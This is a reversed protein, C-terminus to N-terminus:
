RNTADSSWDLNSEPSRRAFQGLAAVEPGSRANFWGCAPERGNRTSGSGCM